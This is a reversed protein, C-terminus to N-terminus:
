SYSGVREEFDQVLADWEQEFEASVRSWSDDSASELGQLRREVRDRREELMALEGRLDVRTRMDDEDDLRARIGRIRFGLDEVKDRMTALSISSGMPNGWNNRGAM